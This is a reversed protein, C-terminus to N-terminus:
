AAESRELDAVIAAYQRQCEIQSTKFHEALDRWSWEDLPVERMAMLDLLEGDSWMKVSRSQASFSRKIRSDGLAGARYLLGMVASRSVGEYLKAIQGASWGDNFKAIIEAKDAESWRGM